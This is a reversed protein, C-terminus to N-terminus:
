KQHRRFLGYHFFLVKESIIMLYLQDFAKHCVRISIQKHTFIERRLTFIYLMTKM